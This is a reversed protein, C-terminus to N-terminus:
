RQYWYRNVLIDHRWVTDIVHKVNNNCKLSTLFRKSSMWCHSFSLRLYQRKSIEVVINQRLNSQFWGLNNCNSTVHIPYAPYTSPILFDLAANQKHFLKTQRSRYTPSFRINRIFVVLIDHASGNTIILGHRKITSCQFIFDTLSLPPFLLFVTTRTAIENM